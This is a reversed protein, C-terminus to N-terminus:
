VRYGNWFDKAAVKKKGEKQLIIPRIAGIQCHIIENKTDLRDTISIYNNEAEEEKEVIEAKWIKIREGNPMKFYCGGFVDFARIKRIVSIANEDFNLLLEEKQIKPALLEEEDQKERKEKGDRLQICVSKLMESGIKGASEYVDSSYVNNDINISKRLFVDGADMNKTVEIVCIGIEEEGNEIARAIPAAGRYKPLDSPHLNIPPLKSKSLLKQPLFLGFSVVVIIDPNICELQEIVESTITKISTLPINNKQALNTLSLNKQKRTNEIISETTFIHAIALDEELKSIANLAIIGEGFFVIRM